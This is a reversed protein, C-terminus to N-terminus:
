KLEQVLPVQLRCDTWLKTNKIVAPRRSEVAACAQLVESAKRYSNLLCLNCVEMKFAPTGCICSFLIPAQCNHQSLQQEGGAPSGTNCLLHEWAPTLPEPPLWWLGRGFCHKWELTLAEFSGHFLRTLKVNSLAFMKLFGVGFRIDSGPVCGPTRM